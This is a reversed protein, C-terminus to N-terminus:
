GQPPPSRRPPAGPPPEPPPEGPPPMGLPREGPPPAGPPPPPGLGPFGASPPPASAKLRELKRAQEPTLIGLMQSDIVDQVKRVRPMAERLIADIEKRHEEFIERGRAQQEPTLGLQSYAGGLGPPHPPRPPELFRHWGAGALAGAVFVFALLAVARLKLQGLSAIATM